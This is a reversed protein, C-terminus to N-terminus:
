NIPNLLQRAIDQALQPTSDEMLIAIALPSGTWTSTNGGILWTLIPQSETSSHGLQYWIKADEASLRLQIQQAISESIVQRSSIVNEFTKWTGDVDLYSNVLRPESYYGKNTIASAVLGMQLPSVKIGAVDASTITSLDEPFQSAAAVELFINPESNLELDELLKVTDKLYAKDPEFKPDLKCGFRLPDIKNVNGEMAALCEADLFLSTDPILGELVPTKFDQVLYFFHSLTGMPYSGQTSRNLLPAKDSAMLEDWHDALTNSDFGPHSALAYIEGSQANLVVIAGAKTGLLEDAKNQLHLSINLKIDLGPPPQNYLLDNWWVRAYDSGSLGRLYPYMSKQIGTQGYLGNAYGLTHSLNQAHNVLQYNGPMGYVGSLVIGTQSVVKGRPSLQDWVAWRPNENKALLNERDIIALQAHRLILLGFLVMIVSGILLYPKRTRDPLIEPTNETSIRLLIAIAIMNTVLSSGGYSAFPLTIGTLPVLGLNGSVIILTQLALYASLGFALYRGFSTKSRMAINIGRTILLLLLILYSAGGILGFEEGIVTYIFDSVAIPVLYPSGLGPGTGNIGGAAIAIRSQILQYAANQTDLWPNLWIDVRAKVIPLTFYGITGVTLLVLPFIWLFRRRHTTVTIMLIYLFAILVATGLDRQWVLLVGIVATLIVTPLISALLKANPKLQDAFFASLYVIVLLKLPESPQLYIKLFRLWLRPGSETPNVGIIFTLGLLALGLVLWIYKYRKLTQTINPRSIAFIIILSGVSFWLTQLLGLNSSLRWVSLLGWGSLLAVVPFILPDRNPLKKRLTKQILSVWFLWVFFPLFFIYKINFDPQHLRISTSVSLTAAYFFVFFGAWVIFRPKRISGQDVSAISM